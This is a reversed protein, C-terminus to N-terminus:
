GIKGPFRALVPLGRASLRNAPLWITPALQLNRDRVGNLQEPWPLLPWIKESM